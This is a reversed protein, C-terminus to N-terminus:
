EDKDEGFLEDFSKDSIQYRGSMVLAKAMARTDGREARDIERFFKKERDADSIQDSIKKESFNDSHSM